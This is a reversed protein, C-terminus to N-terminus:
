TSHEDSPHWSLDLEELEQGLGAALKTGSIRVTETETIFSLPISVTVNTGAILATINTFM